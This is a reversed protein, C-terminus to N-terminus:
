FEYRVFLEIRREQSLTESIRGFQSSGILQVPSAYFVPHNLLNEVRAGAKVIQGETIRTSKSVSFDLFFGTPGSFLRRQLSGAEGPGPHFFVQGLFPDAGDPSVGSNDRPNIAGEAIIFPGDDTMRFRVIHELDQKTYETSATNQGSRGRRNVTGRRSFVSIPAGSQWTVISSLTWGRTLRNGSQFPLEWVVNANFVHNQDFEARARELHPQALDLFPDFRQQTGSSDTLVKSFTYNGQFQVGSAARRRVELQLGHYSSNSYNTVLDAVYADRNHRFSFNPGVLNNAVYINALRGPEGTEITSQVVPHFLLGGAVLQPFVTVEQSGPIGPNYRPDFRGTADRALNGNSYARLFDDLFGNERLILQNYDFARVLKTGKNGVYRAEVVTKWGVDHQLGLTWQQLYPARFNPDISFIASFPDLLQNDSSRRPVKYEPPDIQVPGDALFATLNQLERTGQLGDNARIANTGAEIMSDYVYNISYGARVATKGDGFVDWALGINPAFNNRDPVWLSRGSAGGAFDLEANSLLTEILTGHAQVPLLMLGDREDLRGYYEWRVGLNVTFRPTLKLNDQLYMGMSDYRYRRRNEQGSVFGSTTDRVNFSQDADEIMGALTSLLASATGLDAAAIGGPFFAGPVQYPSDVSIGLGMTPIVGFENFSNIRIQEVNFGFRLTNRGIQAMVNDSYSYTDTARGQPAFNVDPNTYLTGTVRYREPFASNRFDGPALNFGFRAENTWRPGPSTRWSVSLFNTHQFDKVPPSDYYGVGIDDDTRDNNEETTKYTVGLANRPTLNWDGRATLADRNANDQTLFRYGGTNLMRESTSDGRDFNNIMNPGPIRALIQAAVPDAQLGQLELLNVQRLTGGLDLYSFIGQAADATLITTNELSERRDRLIEYNVFFFVRNKIVPGGISGGLQNIKLEPKEIENRNAFWDNAALRENRWHWYANGHFEPGGSRTIFNVQSAGGSAAASGNQSTVTFEAVQDLLTRNPLFDLANNRIFNDQISIGDLTVKSFATRQGNIVTARAGTYAVGAQLALFELPNRGVLPLDAMQDATVVSTVEANTTQVQSVGGEVVVVETAAGIELVIPPLSTERAVDVKQAEIMHAKFGEALVEVTYNGPMLSVALFGGATNTQLEIEAGTADSRVTIAAAPIAAGSPDLVTGALRGTSAQANALAVALLALILVHVIRTV